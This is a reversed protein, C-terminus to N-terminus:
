GAQLRAAVTPQRLKRLAEAEIQRARERTVGLHRGVETLPQPTAGDLGFHLTLVQRERATLVASLAGRTEEARIRRMAGEEPMVASEDALADIFPEEGDKSMVADLSLPAQAALFAAGMFAADAGLVSALDASTPERGLDDALDAVARSRRALAERLHVPM